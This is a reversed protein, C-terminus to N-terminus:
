MVIVIDMGMATAKLVLPLLLQYSIGIHHHYPHGQHHAVDGICGGGDDAGGILVVMVISNWLDVVVNPTPKMKLKADENSDVDVVAEISCLFKALFGRYKGFSHFRLCMILAM